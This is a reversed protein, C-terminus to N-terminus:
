DVGDVTRAAGFAVECGREAGIRGHWRSVGAPGRPRRGRALWDAGLVLVILVAVPVVGFRSYTTEADGPVVAGELVDARYRPLAEVVSGASNILATVGDNTARVVYRDLELARMRAMQLHQWPGSTDGLWSDESLVVILDAGSARGRVIQPYAVEHCVVAALTRGGLRLPQQFREFPTLSSMPYGLPRLAGGLLNRLPIYEGFPVLREKRFVSLRGDELAAAVNFIAASGDATGKELAGFVLRGDLHQAAEAIRDEVVVVDVPIASEPWVVLDADRAGDSLGLYRGLLSEWSGAGWKEELPVNGQVLAVSFSDEADRGNVDLVLGPCWLAAALALAGWRRQLAQGAAVATAAGAFGVAWVGGLPAYVSLPTDILAYGLHLWPFSLGWPMSLSIEVVCLGSAFVLADLVGHRAPAAFFALLSFVASAVVVFAAFLGCAFAVSIGAYADLSVFIWFAGGGFKGVGFLFCRGVAEWRGAASCATRHLVFLAVLAVPWLGYPAFAFPFAAGAGLALTRGLGKSEWLRAWPDASWM